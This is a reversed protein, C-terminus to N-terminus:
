GGFRASECRGGLASVFFDERLSVTAALYRSLDRDREAGMQRAQPAYKRFVPPDPPFPMDGFGRLFPRELHAQPVKTFLGM